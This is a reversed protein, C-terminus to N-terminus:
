SSNTTFNFPRFSCYQPTTKAKNVLPFLDKRVANNMQPSIQSAILTDDYNICHRFSDYKDEKRSIPDLSEIEKLRNIRALAWKPINTGKKQFKILESLQWFLAVESEIEGYSNAVLGLSPPEGGSDISIIWEHHIDTLTELLYDIDDM